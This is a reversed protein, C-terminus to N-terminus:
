CALIQYKLILYLPLNSKGQSKVNASCRYDYTQTAQAAEYRHDNGQNKHLNKSNLMDIDPCSCMSQRRGQSKVDVSCCAIIM